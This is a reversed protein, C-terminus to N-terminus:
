PVIFAGPVKSRVQPLAATAEDHTAYHGVRLTFLPQATRTDYEMRVPLGGRRLRALERNAGTPDAFAGCQITFYDHNWGLQTRAEPAWPSNPFRDLVRSFCRRSEAWQGAERLATGLRVLVQDTPPTDPLHPLARQWREIAEAANGADLAMGGLIADIRASLDDRQSWGHATALDRKASARQGTRLHCLARIYLAEAAPSSNQYAALFESTQRTAEAYRGAQYDQHARRLQERAQPPVTSCGGALLLGALAM